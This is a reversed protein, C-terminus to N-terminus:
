SSWVPETMGYVISHGFLADCLGDRVYRCFYLYAEAENYGGGYIRDGKLLDTEAWDPRLLFVQM